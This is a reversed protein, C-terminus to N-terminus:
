FPLALSARTEYRIKKGDDTSVTVNPFLHRTAEQAHPVLGIDFPRVNPTMATFGNALAIAPPLLSLVTRVIPRPDTVSVSTFEKPFAALAKTLEPSAKWAPLAGNARLIYGYVGQPYNGVVFWGKHTAFSLASIQGPVNVQLTSVEVGHYTRKKMEVPVGPLQPIVGILKGLSDRLKNEDKLKFLYVKGLLPPGESPSNYAVWMDGFSGFLDEGLKVGLFGEVQNLGERVNDAQDPAVVRVIAEVVQIGADYVRGANFNSASFGSLDEPLPPLEALSLKKTSLLALLGKRPGPIDIEAIGREMAGDFGGVFTASKVSKLGLDEILRSIEPSVDSGLKTLAAVGVYGRSWVTFEKFAAVQKYLPNGALGTEKQDILRAYDSPNDTGVMFVADKGESWYGFNIFPTNIEHITRNGVKTEQVPAGSTGVIRNALPIMVDASKPFVLTVQGQPAMFSKATIGVTLGNKGISALTAFGDKIMDAAQPDAQAAAGQATESAWSWLAALFTGTEGKMTKGLATKEYAARHTDFGDWRFFLQTNPPLLREPGEQASAAGPAAISCGAAVAFLCLLGLRGM